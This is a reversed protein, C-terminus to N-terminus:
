CWVLSDTGAGPDPYPSESFNLELDVNFRCSFGVRFGSFIRHVSWCEWGSTGTSSSSGPLVEFRSRVGARRPNARVRVTVCLWAGWTWAWSEPYLIQTPTDLTLRRSSCASPGLVEVWLVWEQETPIQFQRRCKPELKVKREYHDLTLRLTLPEVVSAQAMM